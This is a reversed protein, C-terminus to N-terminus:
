DEIDNLRGRLADYKADSIKPADNQYYSTDHEAIERSLRELEASAQLPTLDQAAVAGPKESM